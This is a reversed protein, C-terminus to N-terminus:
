HYEKSHIKSKFNEYSTMNYFSIKMNFLAHHLFRGDIFSHEEDISEDRYQVRRTAEASEDSGSIYM